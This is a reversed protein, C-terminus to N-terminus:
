VLLLAFVFLVTAGIAALVGLFMPDSRVRASPEIYYSRALFFGLVAVLSALYLSVIGYTQFPYTCGISTAGLQNTTETTECTVLLVAGVISLTAAAIAASLVLLLRPHSVSGTIEPM